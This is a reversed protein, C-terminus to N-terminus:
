RWLWWWPYIAGNGYGVFVYYVLAVVLAALVTGIGWKGQVRTRASYLYYAKGWRDRRRGTVQYLLVGLSALYLLPLFLAAALVGIASAAILWVPSGEKPPIDSQLRLQVERQVRDVAGAENRNLLLNKAVVGAEIGYREEHRLVDELAETTYTAFPHELLAPGSWAQEAREQIVYRAKAFLNTPIEIWLEPQLSHGVIINERWPEGVQTSNRVSINEAELLETMAAMDEPRFFHEFVAYEGKRGNPGAPLAGTDLLDDHSYPM